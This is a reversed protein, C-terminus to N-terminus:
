TKATAFLVATFASKHFPFERKQGLESSAGMKQGGHMLNERTKFKRYPGM